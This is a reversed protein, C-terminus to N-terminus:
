PKFRFIISEVQADTAQWEALKKRLLSEDIASFESRARGNPTKAPANELIEIRRAPDAISEIVPMVQHTKGSYFIQIAAQCAEELIVPDQIGQAFTM